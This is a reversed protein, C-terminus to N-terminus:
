QEAEGEGEEGEGPAQEGSECAAEENIGKGGVVPGNIPVFVDQLQRRQGNREHQKRWKRDKPLASGDAKGQKEGQGGQEGANQAKNKFDKRSKKLDVPGNDGKTKGNM